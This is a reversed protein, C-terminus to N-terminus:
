ERQGNYKELTRREEIMLKSTLANVTREQIPVSDWASRLRDFSPPLTKLIVMKLQEELVQGPTGLLEVNTRKLTAIIHGSITQSPNYKYQFFNELIM